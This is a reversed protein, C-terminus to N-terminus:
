LRNLFYWISCAHIVAIENKLRGHEFERMAIEIMQKVLNLAHRGYIYSPKFKSSQVETKSREIKNYFLFYFCLTM